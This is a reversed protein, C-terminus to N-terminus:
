RLVEENAADRQDEESDYDHEALAGPEAPKADKAKAQEKEKEKKIKEKEKLEESHDSPESYEEQVLGLNPQLDGLIVNEGDQKLKEIYAAIVDNTAQDGMLTDLQRAVEPVARDPRLLNRVNMYISALLEDRKRVDRAQYYWVDMPEPKPEEAAADKKDKKGDKKDKKKKDKKKDASRSKDRDSNQQLM